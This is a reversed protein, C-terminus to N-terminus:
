RIMRTIALPTHAGSAHKFHAHQRSLLPRKWPILFWPYLSGFGSNDWSPLSSWLVRGLLAVLVVFSTGVLGCATLFAMIVMKM